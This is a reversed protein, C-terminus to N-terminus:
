GNNEDDVSDNSDNVREDIINKYKKKIEEFVNDTTKINSPTISIKKHNNFNINIIKSFNIMLNGSEFSKKKKKIDSDSLFERLGNENESYVFCKSADSIVVISPQDDKNHIIEVFTGSYLIDSDTLIDVPPNPAYLLIYKEMIKLGDLPPGFFKKIYNLSRKKFNLSKKKFNKDDDVLIEEQLRIRFLKSSLYTIIYMVLLHLIILYYNTDNFIEIINKRSAEDGAMIMPIIDIRYIDSSLVWLPLLINLVAIPLGRSIFYISSIDLDDKTIKSLRYKKSIGFRLLIIPIYIYLFIILSILPISIM